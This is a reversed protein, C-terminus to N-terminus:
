QDHPQSHEELNSTSPIDTFFDRPEFIFERVQLEQRIDLDSGTRIDDSIKKRVTPVMELLGENEDGPDEDITAADAIDFIASARTTDGGDKDMARSMYKKLM